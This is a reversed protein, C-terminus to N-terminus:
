LCAHGRTLPPRLLAKRKGREKRAMGHRDRQLAGLERQLPGEKGLKPFFCGKEEEPWGEVQLGWPKTKERMGAPHISTGAGDEVGDLPVHDKSCLLPM